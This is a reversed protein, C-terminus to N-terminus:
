AGAAPGLPPTRDQTLEQTSKIYISFAHKSPHVGLDVNPLVVLNALNRQKVPLGSYGFRHM